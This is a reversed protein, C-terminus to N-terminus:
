DYWHGQLVQLQLTSPVLGVSMGADLSARFVAEWHEATGHLLLQLLDVNAHVARQALRKLAARSTKSDLAVSGGELPQLPTAACHLLAGLAFFARSAKAKAAAVDLRDAADTLSNAFVVLLWVSHTVRLDARYLARM